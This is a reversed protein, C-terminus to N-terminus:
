EEAREAVVLSQPQVRRYEVRILQKLIQGCLFVVCWDIGSCLQLLGVSGQSNIVNNDM